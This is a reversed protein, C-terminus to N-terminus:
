IVLLKVIIALSGILDIKRLTAKEELVFHLYMQRFFTILVILLILIIRYGIMYM